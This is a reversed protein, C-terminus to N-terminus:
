KWDYRIISAQQPSEELIGNEFNILYFGSLKITKEIVNDTVEVLGNKVIVSGKKTSNDYLVKLLGANPKVTINGIAIAYSKVGSISTASTIEGNILEIINPKNNKTQKIVLETNSYLKLYSDDKIKNLDLILALHSDKEAKLYVTGEFIDNSICPLWDSKESKKYFVKGYFDSITIKCKEIKPTPKSNNGFTYHQEKREEKKEDFLKLSNDAYYYICLMVFLIFIIKFVGNANNPSIRMGTM